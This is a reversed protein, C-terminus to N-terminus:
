GRRAAAIEELRTRARRAGLKDGTAEQEELSARADAEAGDLDGDLLRIEARLTLTHPLSTRTGPTDMRAIARNVDARGEDRRGSLFRAHGLTAAIHPASLDGMEDLVESASELHAIAESLNGRSVELKGLLWAALAESGRDGIEKQEGISERLHKAADDLRGAEFETQGLLTKAVTVLNQGKAAIFGEMCALAHQVADDPRDDVLALTALVYECRAALEGNDEINHAIAQGVLERAKDNENAQVAFEALAFIGYAVETTDNQARYWELQENISAVGEDLLGIASQMNALAGLAGARLESPEPNAELAVTLWRRGEDFPGHRFWLATSNVALQLMKRDSRFALAARINEKAGILHQLNQPSLYAILHDRHRERITDAEGSVEFLESAYARITELMTYSEDSPVVLSRDVLSALTPLVDLGEGCINTIPDITASGPFVAMRSFLTKEDHDLLDYSWDITARLTQQRPLDSRYGGVLSSFRDDLSSALQDLTMTRLRAAALELALPIGDLRECIRAVVTGDPEFSPDALKARDTFLREAEADALSPLRWALEGRLRLPERSTALVRVGACTTLLADVLDAVVDIVHECNDLVLLLERDRLHDAVVETAPRDPDDGLGLAAAVQPGVFSPDTLAALEVLWAGGSFAGTSASAAEIALRTKGVGGAGTITVLPHLAILKTLEKMEESRGIFATRVIPLNHVASSPARPPRQERPLDPHEIALLRVPEDVDKLRFAGLDLLAAFEPLASAADATAASVLVQGGNAADSVRSAHHVALGVFDNDATRNADGTHLGMRVRVDTDAPWAATRLELQAQLCAAIADQPDDFVVFSGDGESRVEAGGHDAWARRLIARQADQVREYAEAGLRGLLRTSAEIDTFCFTLAV